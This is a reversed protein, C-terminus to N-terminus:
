EVDRVNMKNGLREFCNLFVFHACRSVYIIGVLIEM